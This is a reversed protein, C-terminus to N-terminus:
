YQYNVSNIKGVDRMNGEVDIADDQMIFLSTSRRGRLMISFNHQFTNSYNERVDEETLRIDGLITHYLKNFKTTFEVM